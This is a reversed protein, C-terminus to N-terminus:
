GEIMITKKEPVEPTKNKPLELHLVGHEFKAKVDNETINEGIYFSRQMTGSYREKRIPKGKKEEQEEKTKTATVTLYGNSLELAIRDKSFGPIDMDILYMNDKEHVDTKMIRDAHRGYLKRETRGTDEIDPWQPFAFLDDFFNEGFLSPVLM